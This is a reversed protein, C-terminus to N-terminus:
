LRRDLLQNALICDQPLGYMGKQVEIYVHIDSVYSLLNYETIIEQPILKIPIHMYEFSVMPTGLYFNNVDLCTYTAGETSITSNWLCKSTTLDASCTSGDGPYQILNGGMTLSVRRTETKNPRIDVVFHGYTLFKGKPIEHHTIFFITSSGEIRGGVGKALCGFENSAAKKWVPFTTEDQILQHYELSTGTNQIIVDNVMHIHTTDQKPSVYFGQTNTFTIPCFVRPALLQAQTASHQCTRARTNYRPLSPTEMHEEEFTDFLNLGAMGQPVYPANEAAPHPTLPIV